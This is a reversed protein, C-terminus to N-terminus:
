SAPVRDHDLRRRTFRSAKFPQVLDNVEGFVIERSLLKGIVPGLTVGSHTLAEYYGPIEPVEGVSPLGDEPVPRLGLHAHVLEADEIGEYTARARQLLEHALEEKSTATDLKLDVSDHHLLIHDRDWPRLNVGPTHVVRTSPMESVRVQALLGPVTSLPLSIGCSRAVSRAQPGAANVIADVSIREGSSLNLQIDREDCFRVSEAMNEFRQRCGLEEAASVLSGVLLPADIWGEEPFHAILHDGSVEALLKALNPEMHEAQAINLRDVAYGWQSLRDIRSELEEHQVQGDAIMMNGSSHLWDGDGLEELLRKHEEMGAVNLEFYERPEKRNANLWAFTATTTAQGPTGSDILTTEAGNSSLHYAVSSGLIGAGIVAVRM